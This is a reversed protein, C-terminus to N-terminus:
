QLPAMLQVMDLPSLCPSTSCHVMGAAELAAFEKQTAELKEPDLCRFASTFPPGRTSLFHAVICTTQLLRDGPQLM